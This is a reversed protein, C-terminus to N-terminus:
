FFVKVKSYGQPLDNLVIEISHGGRLLCCCSKDPNNEKFIVEKSTIQFAWKFHSVRYMSFVNKIQLIGIFFKEYLFIYIYIFTVIIYSIHRYM